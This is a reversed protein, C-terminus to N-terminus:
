TTERNIIMTSDGHKFNPVVFCVIGMKRVASFFFRATIKYGNSGKIECSFSLLLLLLVPYIYIVLLQQIRM